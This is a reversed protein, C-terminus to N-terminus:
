ANSWSPTKCSFALRICCKWCLLSIQFLKFKKYDIDRVVIVDNYRIVQNDYPGRLIRRVYNELPSLLQECDFCLLEERIGKQMPKKNKDQSTTLINIIHKEDYVPKYFYEPIIHSNQLDKEKLCLRCKM